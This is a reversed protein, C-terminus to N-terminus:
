GRIFKGPIDILVIFSKRFNIDVQKTMNKNGDIWNDPCVVKCTGASKAVIWDAMMAADSPSVTSTAGPVYTSLIEKM